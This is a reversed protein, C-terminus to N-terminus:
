YDLSESQSFMASFIQPDLQPIQRASLKKLSLLPLTKPMGEHSVFALQDVELSALHRSMSIQPFLAFFPTAAPDQSPSLYWLMAGPDDSEVVSLHRLEPLQPLCRYESVTEGSSYVNRFVQLRLSELTSQALTVLDVIHRWFALGIKEVCLRKLKSEGLPFLLTLPQSESARYDEIKLDTLSALDPLLINDNPNPYRLSVEGGLSLSQLRSSKHLHPFIALISSSFVAQFTSETRKTTYKLVLLNPFPPLTYVHSAVTELNLNTISAAAMQLIPFAKMMEGIVSRVLDRKSEEKSLVKVIKITERSMDKLDVERYLLRQSAGYWQKCVLSTAALAAARSDHRRIVRPPLHFLIEELVENPLSLPKQTRFSSGQESAAVEELTVDMDQSNEKYVAM